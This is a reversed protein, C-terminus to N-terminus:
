DKVPFIGKTSKFLYKTMQQNSEFGVAYIISGTQTIKVITDSYIREQRQDWYLRESEFLEGKINTMRVNGTLLWLKSLENFHAYNAQINADVKLKEDFKEFRVGMPFEWYPELARDYIDWKPASIRYRTVGSDSIVTTVNTASLRPINARDNIAAIKGLETKPECSSFYFVSVVACAATILTKKVIQIRIM